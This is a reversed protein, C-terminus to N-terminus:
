SYNILVLRPLNPFETSQWFTLPQDELFNASRGQMCECIGVTMKNNIEASLEFRCFRIIIIVLSFCKERKGRVAYITILPDVGCMKFMIVMMIMIIPGMIDGAICTEYQWPVDWHGIGHACLM